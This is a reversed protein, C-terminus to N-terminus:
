EIAGLDIIIYNYTAGPTCYNVTVQDATNSGGYANFHLGGQTGHWYQYVIRNHIDSTYDGFPFSFAPGFFHAANVMNATVTSAQITAVSEPAAQIICLYNDFGCEHTLIYNAKTATFYGVIPTSGGGGGVELAAIAQAMQELTMEQTGGTKGRIADAIATLKDTLAM